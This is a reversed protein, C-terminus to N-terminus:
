QAGDRRLVAPITRVLIAVDNWLTWNRVYWADLEVRREYTTNSRGSVQWIGTLGPKAGLYHDINAGYLPMESEAIPRPGILSMEGRLVNFLQPLEDLSTKRLFRGIPTIRPDNRLKRTSQWEAALEMDEALLRALRIEADVVMTRFKICRFPRGGIGIRPQSYFAPGGDTRSLAALILLLPGLLILLIAAAIVDCLSKGLRAARRACGDDLCHMTIDRGFFHTPRSPFSPSSGAATVVSFGIREALAITILRQMQAVDDVAVLLRAADLQAVLPRLAPHGACLDISGPAIQGVIRYGLSRNARLAAEAEDAARGTGVIAIPIEWVRLRTLTQRTLLNGLTSIMGFLLTAVGSSLCATLEGTSITQFFGLLVCFGSGSVLLRFEESRPLRSTYRGKFLLYAILLVLAAFQRRMAFTGPVLANDILARSAYAALIAALCDTAVLAGAVILPRLQAQRVGTGAAGAAPTFRELDDGTLATM